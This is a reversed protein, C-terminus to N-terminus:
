FPTDPNTTLSRTEAEALPRRALIVSATDCLELPTEGLLRVVQGGPAQADPWTMVASDGHAGVNWKELVSWIRERVAPSLKPATYVGSAIELMTSALFGRVRGEANRTVVITM